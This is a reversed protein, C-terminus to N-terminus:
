PDNGKLGFLNSYDWLPADSPPKLFKFPYGIQIFLWILAPMSMGESRKQKLYALMRDSQVKNKARVKKLIPAYWVSFGVLGTGVLGGVLYQALLNFISGHSLTKQFVIAAATLAVCLFWHRKPATMAGGYVFGAVMAGSLFYGGHMQWFAPIAILIWVALIALTVIASLCAAPLVLLWRAM